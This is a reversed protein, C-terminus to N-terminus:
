IIFSSTQIRNHDVAGEVLDPHDEPLDVPVVQVEPRVAQAELVELAEPVAVAAGSVEPAEPVAVVVGSVELAEQVGGAAEIAEQVEPLEQLDPIIAQDLHLEEQLNIVEQVEVQVIVQLIDAMTQAAGTTPVMVEREQHQAMRVIHDPLEVTLRPGHVEVPVTIGTEQLPM